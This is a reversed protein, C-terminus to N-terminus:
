GRITYTEIIMNDDIVPYKPNRQKFLKQWDKYEHAKQYAPIGMAKERVALIRQQYAKRRCREESSAVILDYSAKETNNQRAIKVKEKAFYVISFTSFCLMALPLLMILDYEGLYLSSVLAITCIINIVIGGRIAREEHWHEKPFYPNITYNCAEKITLIETDEGCWACKALPSGYRYGKYTILQDPLVINVKGCFLCKARIDGTRNSIIPPLVSKARSTTNSVSLVVRSGCRDCFQSGERLSNGCNVCFM